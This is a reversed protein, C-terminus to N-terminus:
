VFLPQLTIFVVIAMLGMSVHWMSRHIGGCEQQKSEIWFLNDLSAIPYKANQTWVLWGAYGSLAVLIISIPSVSAADNILGLLAQPAVILFLLAIQLGWARPIRNVFSDNNNPSDKM